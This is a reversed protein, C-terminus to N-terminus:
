NTRISKNDAYFIGRTRYNEYALIKKVTDEDVLGFPCDQSQNNASYFLRSIVLNNPNNDEIVIREDKRYIPSSLIEENFYEPKVHIECGGGNTTCRRSPM